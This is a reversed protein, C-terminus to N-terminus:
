LTEFIRRRPGVDKQKPKPPIAQLPPSLSSGAEKFYGYWSIPSEKQPDPTGLISGIGLPRFLARIM